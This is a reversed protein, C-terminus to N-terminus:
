NSSIILLLVSIEICDFCCSLLVGLHSHRHTADKKLWFNMLRYGTRNALIYCIKITNNEPQTKKKVNYM